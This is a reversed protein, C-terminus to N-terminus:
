AFFDFRDGVLHDAHRFGIGDFHIEAAALTRGCPKGVGVDRRVHHLVVAVQADGDVDARLGRRRRRPIEVVRRELRRHVVRLLARLFRALVRIREREDLTRLVVHLDVRRERAADVEAGGFAGPHDLLAEIDALLFADDSGSVDGLDVLGRARRVGLAEEGVVLVGFRAEDQGAARLVAAAGPPRSQGADLVDAQDIRGLQRLDGRVLGELALLGPRDFRAAVRGDELGPGVRPEERQHGAKEVRARRFARDAVVEASFLRARGLDAFLQEAVGKRKFLSM